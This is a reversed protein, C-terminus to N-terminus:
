MLNERLCNKYDARHPFSTSSMTLMQSTVWRLLFGVLWEKPYLAMWEGERERSHFPLACNASVQCGNQRNLWLLFREM